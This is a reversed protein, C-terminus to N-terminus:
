SRAEQMVEWDLTSRMSVSFITRAMPFQRYLGMQHRAIRVIDEARPHMCNRMACTPDAHFVNSAIGIGRELFFENGEMTREPPELGWVLGCFVNYEGFVGRAYELADIWRDYGYNESKGPCLKAFVGRDYVELNFAISTVGAAKYENVMQLDVPPHTLLHVPIPRPLARTMVEIKHVVHARWEDDTRCTGTTVSILPIPRWETNAFIETAQLITADTFVSEMERGVTSRARKMGCFRCPVGSDFYTCHPYLFYGPTDEGAVAVVNEVRVGGGIEMGFYAPREPLRAEVTLEGGHKLFVRDDSIELKWPSDERRLLAVVIGHDLCLLQPLRRAPVADVSTQGYVFQNDYFPTELHKFCDPPFSVGHSLLSAKVQITELRASM